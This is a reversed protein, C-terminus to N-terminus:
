FALIGMVDMGIVLTHLNKLAVTNELFKEM